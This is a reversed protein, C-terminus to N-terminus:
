PVVVIGSQTTPVAGHKVVVSIRWTGSPIPTNFGILIGSNGPVSPCIRSSVFYAQVDPRDLGLAAVYTDARHFEAANAYYVDISSPLDGDACWFGWLAVYGAWGTGSNPIDVNMNTHCGACWDSGWGYVPAEWMAQAAPQQATLALALAIGAAFFIRKV